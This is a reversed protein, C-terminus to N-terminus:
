ARPLWVSALQLLQLRSLPPWQELATAAPAGGFLERVLESESLAAQARAALAPNELLERWDAAVRRRVQLDGKPLGPAGGALAYRPVLLLNRLNSYYPFRDETDPVLRAAAFLPQLARQFLRRHRKWPLPVGAAVDLVATAHFAEHSRFLRRHRDFAGAHGTMSSPWLQLWEAASRPRLARLQDCRAQRREDVQRLLEEGLSHLRPTHLPRGRRRPESTAELLAAGSCGGLVMSLSDLGLSAHLGPGRVDVFLHQSGVLSVVKEFSSAYRELPLPRQQLPAGYAAAAARAIRGERSEPELYSFAQVNTGSPLAALVARSAEGGSLLLGVRDSGACAAKVSDQLAQRLADAAARLSAFRREERPQWYPQPAPTPGQLPFVHVCGPALQEVGRYATYPFTCSRNGVLDAISVLDPQTHGAAHAVADAHTGLVLRGAGDLARFVPIFGFRDTIVRLEGTGPDLRLVLFAGDLVDGPSFDPAALAAHLRGRRTGIVVPAAPLGSLRVVPSGLVVTTHGRESLYAHQEHDPLKTTLSGWPGSWETLEARPLGPFRRLVAGLEGARRSRATYIIDSM